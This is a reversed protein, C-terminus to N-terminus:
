TPVTYRFRIPKLDEDTPKWNEIIRKVGGSAKPGDKTKTVKINYVIFLDTRCRYESARAHNVENITVEVMAGNTTTGKVEVHVEQKKHVCRLDYGLKEQSMDNVKFDAIEYHKTAVDMAWKEVVRRKASDNEYGAVEDDFAKVDQEDQTPRTNKASRSAKKKPEEEFIRELERFHEDSPTNFARRPHTYWVWKKIIQSEASMRNKVKENPLTNSLLEVNDIEGWWVPRGQFKPHKPDKYPEKAITGRGILGEHTFIFATDGIQSNQPMAFRLGKASNTRRMDNEDDNAAM